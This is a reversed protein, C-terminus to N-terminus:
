CHFVRDPITSFQALPNMSEFIFEFHEPLAFAGHMFGQHSRLARGVLGFCPSLNLARLDEAICLSQGVVEDILGIISRPGNFDDDRLQSRPSPLRSGLNRAEDFEQLTKDLIVLAHFLLLRRAM